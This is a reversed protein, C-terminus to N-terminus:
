WGASHLVLAASTSGVRCSMELGSNGDGGVLALRRKEGAETTVINFFPELLELPDTGEVAPIVDELQLVNTKGQLSHRPGPIM